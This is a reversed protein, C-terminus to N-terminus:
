EWGHCALEASFLTGSLCSLPLMCCKKSVEFPDNSHKPFCHENENLNVFEDMFEQIEQVSVRKNRIGMYYVLYNHRSRPLHAYLSLVVILIGQAPLSTHTLNGIFYKGMYAM